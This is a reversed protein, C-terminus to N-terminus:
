IGFSNKSEEECYIFFKAIDFDVFDSGKDLLYQYLSVETTEQNGFYDIFEGDNYIIPYVLYGGQYQKLFNANANAIKYKPSTLTAKEPNGQVTGVGTLIQNTETVFEEYVRYAILSYDNNLGNWVKGDYSEGQVLKKYSAYLPNDIDALALQLTNYTTLGLANLLISKEVKICLNTLAENSNPTEITPNAVLNVVSLPINLENAKQFKSIDIIQPM